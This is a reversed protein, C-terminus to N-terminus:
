IMVLAIKLCTFLMGDFGDGNFSWFYSSCVGPIRSNGIICMYGKYYIVGIIGSAGGKEIGGALTMEFFVEALQSHALSLAWLRLYSATNSISGM